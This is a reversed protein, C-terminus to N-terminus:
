PVRSSNASVEFENLWFILTWPMWYSRDRTRLDTVVNGGRQESEASVKEVLRDIKVEDSFLSPWQLAGPRALSGTIIPLYKFLYVGWNSAYIHAVPEAAPTLRQDALREAPVVTITACASLLMVAAHGLVFRVARAIASTDPRM